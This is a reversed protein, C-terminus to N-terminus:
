KRKRSGKMTWAAYQMSGKQGDERSQASLVPLRTQVTICGKREPIKGTEEKQTNTYVSYLLFVHSDTGCIGNKKEHLILIFIKRRPPM